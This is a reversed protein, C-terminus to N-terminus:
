QRNKEEEEQKTKCEICFTTVPRAKLRPMAIEEECLECIGYSGNAIRSLAADIKKVLKQERERLRLSFNQNAEASAQDSLDPFSEGRQNGNLDQVLGADSLLDARQTELDKKIEDFRRGSTKQTLESQTNKSGM